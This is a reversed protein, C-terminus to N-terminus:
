KVLLSSNVNWWIWRPLWATQWLIKNLSMRGNARNGYCCDLGYTSSPLPDPTPNKTGTLCWSGASRGRESESHPVVAAPYREPPLPSPLATRGTRHLVSHHHLCPLPLWVLSGLLHHKKLFYEPKRRSRHSPLLLFSVCYQVKSWVVDQVEESNAKVCSLTDNGCQSAECNHSLCM